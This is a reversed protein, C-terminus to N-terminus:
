LIIARMCFSLGAISVLMLYFLCYSPFLCGYSDVKACAWREEPFKNFAEIIFVSIFSISVFGKCVAVSLESISLLNLCEIDM